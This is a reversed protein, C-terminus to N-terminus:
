HSTLLPGYYSAISQHRRRRVPRHRAAADALVAIVLALGVLAALVVTAVFVLLGATPSLELLM